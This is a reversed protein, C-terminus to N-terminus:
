VGGDGWFTNNAVDWDTIVADLGILRGSLGPHSFLISAVLGSHFM